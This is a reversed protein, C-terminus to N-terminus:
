NTYTVFITQHGENLAKYVQAPLNDGRATGLFQQLGLTHLGDANAFYGSERLDAVASDLGQMGLHVATDQGAAVNGGM